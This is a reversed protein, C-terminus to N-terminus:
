EQTETGDSSEVEYGLDKLEKKMAADFEGIIEPVEIDKAKMDEVVVRIIDIGQALSRVREELKAKNIKDVHDCEAENHTINQSLKYAKEIAQDREVKLDIIINQLARIERAPDIARKKLQYSQNQYKNLLQSQSVPDTALSTTPIALMLIALIIKLM